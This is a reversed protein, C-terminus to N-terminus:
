RRNLLFFRHGGTLRWKKEMMNRMKLENNLVMYQLQIWIGLAVKSLM